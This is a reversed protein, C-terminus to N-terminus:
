KKKRLMVIRADMSGEVSFLLIALVPGRSFGDRSFYKDISEETIPNFQGHATEKSKGRILAQGDKKLVRFFESAYKARDHDDILHLYDATQLLISLRTPYPYIM